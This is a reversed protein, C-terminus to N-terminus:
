KKLYSKAIAKVAAKMLDKNKETLEECSNIMKGSRCHIQVSDLDTNQKLAEIFEKSSVFITEGSPTRYYILDQTKVGASDKKIILNELIDGPIHPGEFKERRSILLSGQTSVNLNFTIDSIKQGTLFEFVSTDNTTGSALLQLENEEIGMESAIKFYGTYTTSRLFKILSITNSSNLSIGDVSSREKKIGDLIDRTVEISPFLNYKNLLSLLADFAPLGSTLAISEWQLLEAFEEANLGELLPEINVNSQIAYAFIHLGKDSSRKIIKALRFLNPDSKAIASSITGTFISAESSNAILVKAKISSQLFRVESDSIKLNLSKRIKVIQIPSLHIDCATSISLIHPSITKKKLIEEVTELKCIETKTIGSEVKNWYTNFSNLPMENSESFLISVDSKVYKLLPINNDFNNTRNNLLIVNKVSAGNLKLSLNTVNKSFTDFSVEVKEKKLYVNVSNTFNEFIETDSHIIDEIKLNSLYNWVDCMDQMQTSSSLALINARSIENNFTIDQCFNKQKQIETQLPAVVTNQKDASDKKFSCAGTLLNVWLTTFLIINRPRNNM